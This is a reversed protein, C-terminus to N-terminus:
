YRGASIDADIFLIAMGARAIMRSRLGSRARLMVDGAIGEDELEDEGDKSELADDSPEDDEM